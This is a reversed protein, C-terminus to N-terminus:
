AMVINQLSFRVPPTARGLAGGMMVIDASALGLLSLETNVNSLTAPDLSQGEVANPAVGIWITPKFQFVAIDHGPVPQTALLCGDRYLNADIPGGAAANRLRVEEMNVSSPILDFANGAEGSRFDFHQGNRAAVPKTAIGDGDAVSLELAHPFVFPRSTGPPTDEIVKWAIAGEDSPSALNKQFIVVKAQNRDNSQNIFNLKVTM